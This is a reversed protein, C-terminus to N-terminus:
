LGSEQQDLLQKVALAIRLKALQNNWASRPLLPGLKDVMVQTESNDIDTLSNSTDM